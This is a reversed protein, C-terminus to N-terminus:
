YRAVLRRAAEPDGDLRGIARALVLRQRATLRERRAIRAAIREAVHGTDAGQLLETAAALHGPRRWDVGAAGLLIRLTDTWEPYGGRNTRYERRDYRKPYPMRLERATAAAAGAWRALTDATGEEIWQVRAYDDGIPTIAHELEHRLVYATFINQAPTAKRPTRIWRLLGVSIDPGLVIDEFHPDYWALAHESCEDSVTRLIGTVIRRESGPDIDEVARERVISAIVAAQAGGKTSTLSLARVVGGREELIRQIGHLVETARARRPGAFLRVAAPTDLTVDRTPIPGTGSM